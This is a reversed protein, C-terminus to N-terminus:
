AFFYLKTIKHLFKFTRFISMATDSQSVDFSWCSNTM